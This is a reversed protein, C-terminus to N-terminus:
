LCFFGEKLSVSGFTEISAEFFPVDVASKKQTQMMIIIIMKRVKANCKYWEFDYASFKIGTSADILLDGGFAYVFIQTTSAIIYNVFIMKEPGNALLVMLSCICTVFASTVIHLLANPAFSNSM